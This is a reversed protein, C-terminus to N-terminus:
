LFSEPISVSCQDVDKATLLLILYHAAGGFFVHVKWNHFYYIELILLHSCRVIATGLYLNLYLVNGGQIPKYM